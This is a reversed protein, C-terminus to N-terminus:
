DAPAEDIAIEYADLISSKEEPDTIGVLYQEDGEEEIKMLITEDMSKLLAYSNDEMDFLAEISYEKENGNEDEITIYDRINEAM